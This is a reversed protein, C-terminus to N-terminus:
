SQQYGAMLLQWDEQQWYFTPLRALEKEFSRKLRAMNQQQWQQNPQRLQGRDFDILWPKDNADLLINHSNLDDHYVGAQHFRAIMQGISHWQAPTIAQEALVAVLDRAHEIRETIIDAQYSLGRKIVRCAIPKPAPLGLQAIADLLRFEAVSRTTELGTYFYNDHVLKGILGGRYYHKLVWQQEQYTVFYTTGRGTASGVIADNEQWYDATFFASPCNKVLNRNFLIRECGQQSYEIHDSKVKSELNM